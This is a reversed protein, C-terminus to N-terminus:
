VGAFGLKRIPAQYDQILHSLLPPEEWGYALLAIGIGVVVFSMLRALNGLLVKERFAKGIMLRGTAASVVGWLMFTVGLASPLSLGIWIGGVMGVLAPLNASASAIWYDRRPAASASIMGDRKVLTPHAEDGHEAAILGSVTGSYTKGAGSRAASSLEDILKQQDSTKETLEQTAPRPSRRGFGPQSPTSM